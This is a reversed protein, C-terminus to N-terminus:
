CGARAPADALRRDLREDRAGLRAEREVRHELTSRVVIAHFLWSAIAIGFRESTPSKSGPKM